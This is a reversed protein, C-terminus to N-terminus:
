LFRFLPPDCYYSWKDDDLDASPAESDSTGGLQRGSLPPGATSLLLLAGYYKNQVNRTPAKLGVCVSLGKM